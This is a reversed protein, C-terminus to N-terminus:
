HLFKLQKLEAIIIDRDRKMLVLHGFENVDVIKAEIKINNYEYDHWVNYYLLKTIYENKFDSIKNYKLRNYRNQICNLLEILVDEIKFEVNSELKMSTPNLAFDFSTQNVNLGIGCISFSFERGILKNNILVGCIKNKKVYIDNPWKVFVDKIYKSLYDYIGLSLVQTILFQNSIKIFHPKLLISFTLNKGRESEWKNTNQGRGNIQDRTIIITWEPFVSLDLDLLSNQTSELVDHWYINYENNINIMIM